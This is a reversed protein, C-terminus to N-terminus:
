LPHNHLLRQPEGAPTFVDCVCTVADFADDIVSPQFLEGTVPIATV